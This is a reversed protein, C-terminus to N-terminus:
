VPTTIDDTIKISGTLLTYNITADDNKHISVDYVYTTTPDLLNGQTPTITCTISDTSTTTTSIVSGVPSVSTSSVNNATKAYSLTTSTKATVTYNGNFASDIGSVSITEGVVFNHNTSTTLTAVNDNLVKNNVSFATSVITATAEITSGATGGRTPAIYFKATYASSPITYVDGTSTKPKIIFQYTDGQYYSINYTAPFTM